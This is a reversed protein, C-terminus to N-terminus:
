SLYQFPFVISGTVFISNDYNGSAERIKCDRIQGNLVLRFHSRGEENGNKGNGTKGREWKRYSWRM